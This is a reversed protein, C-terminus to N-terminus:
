PNKGLYKNVLSNIKHLKIVVEGGGRATKILKNPVPNVILDQVKVIEGVELM